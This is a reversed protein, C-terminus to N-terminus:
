TSQRVSRVKNVRHHHDPIIAIECSQEVKARDSHYAYREWIATHKCQSIAIAMRDTRGDTVSAIQAQVARSVSISKKDYL